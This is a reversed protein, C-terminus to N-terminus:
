AAAEEFRVRVTFEWMGYDHALTVRNGFRAICRGLIMGPDPYWLTRRMRDADSYRTLCNFAIGKRAREGMTEITAFVHAEWDKDPIDLRVNFIGSALLYDHPESPVSGVVFRVATLGECHRMAAAIMEPAVDLGLYPGNLGHRRLHHALAGYGCGIEAVSATADHGIVHSLERFRREQGEEDRWDVGRATPGHASLTGAYYRAIRELHTTGLPAARSDERAVDSPM